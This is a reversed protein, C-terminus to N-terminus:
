THYPFLAVSGVVNGGFPANAAYMNLISSKSYHLELRMALIVEWFKEAYTRPPNDRSMRVVHMSITSGGRVVEGAKMNDIFSKVFAVPNFGPHFFFWRDEYDLLCAIYKPSYNNTAPFRWQGDDAIKAGLLEGNKATLVTSYPKNFRPVPICLFAIFFGAIILLIIKLKKHNQPLRM